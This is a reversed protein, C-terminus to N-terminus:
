LQGKRVMDEASSLCILGSALGRVCMENCAVQWLNTAAHFGRSVSVWPLETRAIPCQERRVDLLLCQNILGKGTGTFIAESPSGCQVVIEAHPFAQNYDGSAHGFSRAQSFHLALCILAPVSSSLHTPQMCTLRLTPRVHRPRPNTSGNTDCMARCYEWDKGSLGKWLGAPVHNPAEPGHGCREVGQDQEAFGACLGAHVTM